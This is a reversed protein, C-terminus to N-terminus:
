SFKKSYRSRFGKKGYFIGDQGKELLWVEDPSLADVFYPQHTTVFIQITRKGGAHSRFENALFKLCNIIYDM